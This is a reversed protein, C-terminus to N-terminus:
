SVTLIFTQSRAMELLFKMYIKGWKQKTKSGNGTMPIKTNSIEMKLVPGYVYSQLVVEDRNMVLVGQNFMSNIDLNIYCLPCVM